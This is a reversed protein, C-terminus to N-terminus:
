RTKYVCPKLVKNEDRQDLGAAPPDLFRKKAKPGYRARPDSGTGAGTMSSTVRGAAGVGVGVGGPGAGGGQSTKMFRMKAFMKNRLDPEGQLFLGRKLFVDAFPGLDAKNAGAKLDNGPEEDLDASQEEDRRQGISGKQKEGPRAFRSRIEAVWVEGGPRVIRAAEQVSDVWNTGMLSLCFIAVDISNDELPLTGCIDAVTILNANSGDGKALDFSHIHLSFPKCLKALSAALTADGCGLDAITCVRHSRPLPDLKRNGEKNEEESKKAPESIKGRRQERWRKKQSGLLEGKSGVQSRAQIDAIFTDVPNQPWVAVQARFGAHYSAYSSPSETFMISSQTSPTTYLTQNLHRFRASILKQRMSIQLPTLKTSPPSSPLANALTSPSSEPPPPDNAISAKPRLMPRGPHTASTKTSPSKASKPHSTTTPPNSPPTARPPPLTGNAQQIFKQSRRELAQTRRQEYRAKKDLKIDSAQITSTTNESTPKDGSPQEIAEFDHTEHPSEPHATGEDKKHAAAVPATNEGAQKLVQDEVSEVNKRRKKKQREAKGSPVDRNLGGQEKGEIFKSWLDGLNEDTIAPGKTRAHDKQRKRKRLTQASLAGPKSDKPVHPQTPKQQTILSKAEVSWGPVAFM